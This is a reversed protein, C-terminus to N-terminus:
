RGELRHALGDVARGMKNLARRHERLEARFMARDERGQEIMTNRDAVAMWVLVFVAGVNIVALWMRPMGFLWERV